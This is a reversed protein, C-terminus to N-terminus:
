RRRDILFGVVGGMSIPVLAYIPIFVLAVAAQADATLDLRAHCWALFGFGALTPALVARARRHYLFSLGVISSSAIANFAELFLAGGLGPRMYQALWAAGGPLRALYPLAVGLAIVWARMRNMNRSGLRPAGDVETQM